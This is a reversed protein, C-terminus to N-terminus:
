NHRVSGYWHYKILLSNMLRERVHPNSQNIVRRRLEIIPHREERLKILADMFSKTFESPALWRALVLFRGLYKDSMEGVLPLIQTIAQKAVFEKIAM